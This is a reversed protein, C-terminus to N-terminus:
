EGSLIQNRIFTPCELSSLEFYETDRGSQDGVLIVSGYRFIKLGLREILGM